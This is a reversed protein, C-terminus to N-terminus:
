FETVDARSMLRGKSLILPVLILCECLGFGILGVKSAYLLHLGKPRYVLENILYTFLFIVGFGALCAILNMSLLEAAVKEKVERRSRGLARYVGFEYTRKLYQGTVVSNITVALVIAILADIAYFLVYFISFQPQVQNRESEVVQVKRDGALDKVYDYLAEGEMVDSYLFIRGLGDSDEYVYFTCFSGGGIIADVTFTGSLNEDFTGDVTDGLRLGKNKAFDESIVMSRHRCGSLDGEIGLHEFVKQMDEVSNFAYGVGNMDLNLVTGHTMSSFGRASSMVMELKDDEEVAKIFDAFDRYEEDTSQLMVVVLKDSYAFEEQFTYLESHIFNGALFTFVALFLMFAGLAARGRNERMYFLASFPKRNKM